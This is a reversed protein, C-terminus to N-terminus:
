PVAAQLLLVKVPLFRLIAIPFALLVSNLGAFKPINAIKTHLSSDNRESFSIGFFLTKQKGM